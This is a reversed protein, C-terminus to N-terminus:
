ARSVDLDLDLNLCLCLYLCLCLGVWIACKRESTRESTQMAISDLYGLGVMGDM